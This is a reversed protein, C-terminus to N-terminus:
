RCRIEGRSEACHGQPDSACAVRTGSALCAYGCVRGGPSLTSMCALTSAGSFAVGRADVPADWCTARDNEVHCVGNPTQSCALNSSSAACDYGCAISGSVSICKPRPSPQSPAAAFSALVAAPPDWCALSGDGAKCVGWPTQACQVQDSGSICHYGCATKGGTTVCSARPVVVGLAAKADAVVRVLPPPDWCTLTDSSSSCTGLPTEACRAGGYASICGYGCVREGSGSVICEPPLPARSDAQSRGPLTVLVFFAGLPVLTLRTLSPFRM